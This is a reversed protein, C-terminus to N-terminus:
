SRQEKASFMYPPTSLTRPSPPPCCLSRREFFSHRINGAKVRELFYSHLNSSFREKESFPYVQIQKMPFVSYKLAANHNTSLFSATYRNAPSHIRSCTIQSLNALKSKLLESDVQYKMYCDTPNLKSETSTIPDVKEGRLNLSHVENPTNM